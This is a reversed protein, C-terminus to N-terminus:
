HENKDGVVAANNWNRNICAQEREDAAQSLLAAMEDSILIQGKQKLSAHCLTLFARESETLANHLNKDRLREALARLSCQQKILLTEQHKLFSLEQALQKIYDRLQINEARLDASSQNQSM